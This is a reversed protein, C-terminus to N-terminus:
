KKSIIERLHLPSIKAIELYKSFSIIKCYPMDRCGEVNKIGVIKRINLINDGEWELLFCTESGYTEWRIPNKLHPTDWQLKGYEFLRILTEYEGKNKVTIAVRNMPPLIINKQFDVKKHFIKRWNRTKASKQVAGCSIIGRSSSRCCYRFIKNKTERIIGRTNNKLFNIISFILIM